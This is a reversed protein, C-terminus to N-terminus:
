ENSYIILYDIKINSFYFIKLHRMDVPNLFDDVYIAWFSTIRTGTVRAVLRLLVYRILINFVKDLVSDNPVFFFNWENCIEAKHLPYANHIYIKPVFFKIFLVLITRYSDIRFCSTSIPSKNKGAAVPVRVANIFYRFGNVLCCSLAIIDLLIFIVHYFRPTSTYYYCCCTSV